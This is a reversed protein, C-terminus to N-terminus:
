WSPMQFETETFEPVNLIGIKEQTEPRPFDIDVWIWDLLTPPPLAQPNARHFRRYCDAREKLGHSELEIGLDDLADALEDPKRDYVTTKPDEKQTTFKDLIATFQRLAKVAKDKTEPSTDRM